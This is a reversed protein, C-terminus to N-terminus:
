FIRVGRELIPRYGTDRMLDSLEATTYRRPGSEHVDWDAVSSVLLEEAAGFDGAVAKSLVAGLRGPVVASIIGTSRLVPAVRRLVDAPDDVYELLGHCLVLDFTRTDVLDALDSADGQVARV